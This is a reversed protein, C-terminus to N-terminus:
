PVCATVERLLVEHVFEVSQKLTDNAGNMVRTWVIERARDLHAFQQVENGVARYAGVDANFRVVIERMRHRPKEGTLAPVQEHVVQHLIVQLGFERRGVRIERRIPGIHVRAHRERLLV